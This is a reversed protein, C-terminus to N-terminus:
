RGWFVVLSTKLLRSLKEFAAPLKARKFTASNGFVFTPVIDVGAEIARKVFGLRGLVLAYENNDDADCFIEGIGGTTYM